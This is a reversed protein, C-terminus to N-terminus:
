ALVDGPKLQFGNLFDKAVVRRRDPLQLEELAIFTQNECQVIFCNQRIEVISGIPHGTGVWNGGATLSTRWVKVPIGRLEFTAGPWPNMARVTNHLRLAEQGWDLRSISKDVRPAYTALSHDQPQPELDGELYSELSSLLLDAGESALVAELEGATMDIPIKVRRQTLIDGTDMGADIKMITVGTETEGNLITHIIPAAGRYAPLLSAHVNVTGYPPLEFFQSELIQGFAAVVSVDPRLEELLSIAEPSKRLSGYQYVPVSHKEAIQKTAPATMKQGRGAKRDPQTIVCVVEFRASRVLAELSPVAFQPTGLFAVRRM